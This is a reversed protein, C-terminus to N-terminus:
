MNFKAFIKDINRLYKEQNFCEHIEDKSLYKKMNEKFNGDNEFADLAEKQVIKYAEERTLNHETLKLLCSQSYIIDGYLSVNKLMSKEKIVLNELVNNFRNLMYDILIFVDPFVIRECSSHSIDREHWLTINEMCTLVYGRLLRSLGSLNESSVPNSLLPLSSKDLFAANFGTLLSFFSLFYHSNLNNM